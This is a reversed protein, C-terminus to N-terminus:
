DGMFLTNKAETDGVAATDVHLDQALILLFQKKEDINMCRYTTCLSQIVVQPVFDGTNAKTKVVEQILKSLKRQAAPNSLELSRLFSSQQRQHASDEVAADRKKGSESSSTFACQAPRSSVSAALASRVSRRAVGRAAWLGCVPAFVMKLHTALDPLETFSSQGAQVTSHPTVYVVVYKVANKIRHHHAASRPVQARM